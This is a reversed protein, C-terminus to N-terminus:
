LSLKDALWMLKSFRMHDASKGVVSGSQLAEPGQSIRTAPRASSRGGTIENEIHTGTLTGMRMGCGAIGERRHERM